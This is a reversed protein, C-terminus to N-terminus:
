SGYQFTGHESKITLKKGTAGTALPEVYGILQAEINFGRAIRMISEAGDADTYIELRHGMNFVKYMEEWPTGSNKQILEFVTPTRFLNDKVVHVGDVFHLVKTQGGGSCHVMGSIKPRLGEALIRKVVPAYTRTPSLVLKGAPLKVGGNWPVDVLEELDCAGSYVLDKSMAPDYSEPFEQALSKSFTDHRAATLGNSGMGSNYSSEYTAQGSSSLGVIINGAAIRANDVVESVPMRATVTSDVIITRVLDGVDATEGGTLSISVGHRMLEDVLEQTGTIVAKIVEGPILNKNRGITSSLLINDTAGVCLLDDLNMVLADQAIGKWVSLDGTKRWYMYALSSKTGAGDAHMVIAQTPDNSLIDPVIKCFAKPFLGKDMNKIAAHVDGKDASVGRADYRKADGEMPRQAAPLVTYKGHAEVANAVPTLKGSCVKALADAVAKVECEEALRRRVQEVSDGSRIRMSEQAAIKGRGQRSQMMISCGTVCCGDEVAAKVPDPCSPNDVLTPRIILLRGDLLSRVDTTVINPDIDDLLVVFNAEAAAMLSALSRAFSQAPVDPYKLSKLQLSGEINATTTSQSSAVAVIEAPIASTKLVEVLNPLPFSTRGGAVVLIQLEDSVQLSSSVKPFPLSVGLEPLMLWASEAGEIEFQGQGERISVLEGIVVPEEKNERLIQLVEEADSKSVILSMGIGCNFTACMEASSSKSLGAIWRFVAPLEWTDAHVSARLDAPLGQAVCQKMGGGTIPSAAKLKGTKVVALVSQVYVRTPTMLVDGLTQHPDFPAAVSYDSEKSITRVLSFGNSHLGSSPLGIIVDGARMESTKPLISGREAVGVVFGTLDTADSFFIGPMESTRAGLLTCSAEVCAEAVGELIQLVHQADLKPAAFHNMFFLPKAGLSAVENCCLAVIDMGLAMESGIATAVKVKTGVRSTSSLLVPDVYELSALSCLGDECGDQLTKQLLPKTMIDIAEHMQLDVGASRYAPTDWAGSKTRPRMEVSADGGEGFLDFSSEAVSSGIDTRYIAGPFQVCRAAVYARERAEILGTAVATVGLVREGAVMTTQGSRRVIAPMLSKGSGSLRSAKVRGSGSCGNTEVTRSTAMHNVHVSPVCAARDIGTIKMGEQVPAGQPNGADCALVISVAYHKDLIRICDKQLRGQTCLTIAEHMDCDLLPLIVQADPDLLSARLERVAFGGGSILLGATLCGVFPSGEKRFGEMAPSFVEQEVQAILASSVSPAPAVAGMGDTLPGADAASKRRYVQVPPLTIYTNGDSIVAISCERGETTSPLWLDEPLTGSLSRVRDLAAAKAADSWCADKITRQVDVTCSGAAFKEHHVVPIAYRRM